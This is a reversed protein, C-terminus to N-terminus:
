SCPSSAHPCSLAGRSRPTDAVDTQAAFGGDIYCTTPPQEPGPLHGTRTIIPGLIHGPLSPTGGPAHRDPLGAPM